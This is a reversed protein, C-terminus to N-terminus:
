IEVFDLILKVNQFNRSCLAYLYKEVSSRFTGCAKKFDEICRNHEYYGDTSTMLISGAKRAKYERTERSEIRKTSGQQKPPDALLRQFEPEHKKIEWAADNYALIGDLPTVFDSTM